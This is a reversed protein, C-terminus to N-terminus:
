DPLPMGDRGYLEGDDGQVRAGLGSAIAVMVKTFAVDPNKSLVEGNEWCLWSADPAAKASSGRWVAFGDGLGADPAFRQDAGVVRDFEERSIAPGSSDDFWDSRRTIHLDYGM